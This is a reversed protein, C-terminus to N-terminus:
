ALSRGCLDCHEQGTANVARELERATLVDFRQAFPATQELHCLRCLLRGTTTDEAGVFEARKGSISDIVRNVDIGGCLTDLTLGYDDTVVESGDRNVVLVTITDGDLARAKVTGM